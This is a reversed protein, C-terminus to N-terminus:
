RATRARSRPPGPRSRSRPTASVNSNGGTSNVAQLTSALVASGNVLRGTNNGTADRVTLSASPWTSTVTATGTGTYQNAVGPVFAGFNVPTLTLGLTSPVTAKVDGNVNTPSFITFAVSKTEAVNGGRDVARYEVVYNGTDSLTGGVHTFPNATGVNTTRQWDGPAGNLTVRHEVYDIGSVIQGSGAADQATFNVTVPGAYTRGAGPTAPDLAVTTTPATSEEYVEFSVKVIQM